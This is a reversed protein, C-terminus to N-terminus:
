VKDKQAEYFALLLPKSLCCMEKTPYVTVHRYKFMFAQGESARRRFAGSGRGEELRSGKACACFVRQSRLLALIAATTSFTTLSHTNEM